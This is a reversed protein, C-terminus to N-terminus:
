VSWTCFTVFKIQHGVENSLVPLVQNEEELLDEDNQDEDEEKFSGRRTKGLSRALRNSYVNCVNLLARLRQSLLSLKSQVEQCRVVQSFFYNLNLKIHLVTTELSCYNNSAILSSFLGQGLRCLHIYQRFLCCTLLLM